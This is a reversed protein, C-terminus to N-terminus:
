VLTHKAPNHTVRSKYLVWFDADANIHRTGQSGEIMFVALCDSLGIGIPLLHISLSGGSFKKLFQSFSIRTYQARGPATEGALVTPLCGM